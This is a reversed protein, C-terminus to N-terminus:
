PLAEATTEDALEYLTAAEDARSALSEIKAALLQGTMIAWLNFGEAAAAVAPSGSAALDVVQEKPVAEAIGRLNSAIGRLASSDVDLSSM